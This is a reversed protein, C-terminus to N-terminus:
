AAERMLDRVMDVFAHHDLIPKSLYRDAGSEALLRQEDGRMAHATAILVPVHATAPDEKLRRSLDVGSVPRGEWESGRLSVDMIVLHVGGARVLEFLTAPELTHTVTCGLSKELIKRFLTANHPDDEVLVVHNM